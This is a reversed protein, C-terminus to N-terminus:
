ITITAYKMTKNNITPYHEILFKALHAGSIEKGRNKMYWDRPTYSSYNAMVKEYAKVATDEDTFFEGTVDPIVNHWGGLINENVLVPMNYCMAETIVRPSADYINPVLITKCRKM